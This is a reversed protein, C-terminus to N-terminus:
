IVLKVKATAWLSPIRRLPINHKVTLYQVVAAAREQSLELNRSASGTSDAYGQVEVLYNKATPAKAALDDLQEKGEDTLQANNVAFLVTVSKVLDYQDLENIRRNTDVVEQSTEALQRNTQSIQQRNQSIGQKNEAAQQAIPTTQAYAAMAAYLDDESFSITEAVLNGGSGKGDATVVLGPILVTPDFPKGPLILWKRETSIKTADTLVVVTDTRSLDRLVIMEGDRKLIVGQTSLEQGDGVIRKQGPQFQSYGIVPSLMGIMLVLSALLTISRAHRNAM